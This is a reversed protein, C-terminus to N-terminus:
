GPLVGHQVVVTQATAVLIKLDFRLSRKELYELELDLTQTFTLEDRGTVKSLSTIGPKVSLITAAHEGYYPMMEPIEPRPGVLSMDGKLVNYFNLVEDISTRRLFRGVPTVRPDREPHFRLTQLQEPEYRYEYLEPWRERADVYMGRFKYFVFPRGGQGLREQRFIAPGRSTARVLVTVVVILPALLALAAASVVVDILRRALEVAGDHRVAADYSPAPATAPAAPTELGTSL